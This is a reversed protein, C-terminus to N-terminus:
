ILNKYNRLYNLPLISRQWRESGPEVGPKHVKKRKFSKILKELEKM